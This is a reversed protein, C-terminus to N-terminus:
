ENRYKFYLRKDDVGYYKVSTKLWEATLNSKQSDFNPVKEAASFAYKANVSVNAVRTKLTCSLIRPLTQILFAKM